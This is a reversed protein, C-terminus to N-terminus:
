IMICVSVSVPFISSCNMMMWSIFPDGVCVCMKWCLISLFGHRKDYNKQLYFYMLLQNMGYTIIYYSIVLYFFVRAFFFWMDIILPIIYLCTQIYSFSKIQWFTMNIFIGFIKTTNWKIKFLLLLLSHQIGIKKENPQHHRLKTKPTIYFLKVHFLWSYLKDLM